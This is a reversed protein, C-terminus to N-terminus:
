ENQTKAIEQITMFSTKYIFDNYEIDYEFKKQIVLTM